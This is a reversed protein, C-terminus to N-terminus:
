TMALMNAATLAVMTAENKPTAPVTIPAARALTTVTTPL